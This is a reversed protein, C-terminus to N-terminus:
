REVSRREKIFKFVENVDPGEFGNIPYQDDVPGDFKSDSSVRRAIEDLSITNKAGIEVMKPLRSLNSCIYDAIWNVSCYAYKTERAVFVSRNNLIDHLVDQSRDTGFMPGLRVVSSGSAIALDECIKRNLGYPTDLQTRCSISSVLILKSESFFDLFRVTKAVTELLDKNPSLNAQYRKAPNASHIVFDMRSPLDLLSSDRTIRFIEFNQNGFLARVLAKGVFGNAGLIGVSIL